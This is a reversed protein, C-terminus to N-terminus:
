QLNQKLFEAALEDHTQGDNNTELWESFLALVSALPQAAPPIAQTM